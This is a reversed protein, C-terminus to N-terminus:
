KREGDLPVNISDRIKVLLSSVRQSLKAANQNEDFLCITKSKLAVRTSAHRSIWRHIEKTKRTLAYGTVSEDISQLHRKLKERTRKTRDSEPATDLTQNESM